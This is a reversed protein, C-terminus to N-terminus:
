NPTTTLTPLLAEAVAQPKEEHSFLGAGPIVALKANPFTKVMARAQDVPFFKDDEGWVLQVPVDLRSHIENLSHVDDMDFSKLLAAGAVRHKKSERLPRFVFEDFEADIHRRDTFADGFVPRTDRIAPQGAIWGLAPAIGPLHRNVIFSRFRWGPNQPETDILGMARLRPDGVMAHRAIMGGSDHGVVALSELGLQDVVSRVTKKHQDISFHDSETFRSQGTAPFDILHCTVHDVLHPLLKRFTAGSVPWGHVFLVDPGSGVKYYAAEGEGVDFFGHPENRFLDSAEALTLGM